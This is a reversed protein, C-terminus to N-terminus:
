VNLCLAKSLDFLIISILCVLAHAFAPSEHVLVTCKKISAVM